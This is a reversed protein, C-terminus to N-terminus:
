GHEQKGVATWLLYGIAAEEKGDNTHTLARAIADFIWKGGENRLNVIRVIISAKPTFPLSFGSLSVMPAERWVGPIEVVEGDQASGSVMHQTLLGPALKSETIANDQIKSTSVASTGIANNQVAGAALERNGVAGQLLKNGTISADQIKEGTVANSALKNTTVAGDRLMSTIISSYGPQTTRTFSARESKRVAESEASGRASGGLRTLYAHLNQLYVTLPRDLGQPVPRLGRDHAM